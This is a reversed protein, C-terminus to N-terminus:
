NEVVFIGEKLKEEVMGGEIRGDAKHRGELRTVYDEKEREQSRVKKKVDQKRGEVM